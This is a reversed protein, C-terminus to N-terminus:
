EFYGTVDLIVDVPASSDNHVTLRASGDASTGVIASGAKTQGATFNVVSTLPMSTADAPFLRLDGVATGGTVTVNVALATTGAPIGCTGALALTRDSGPDLAPPGSPSTADRTDAVRCPALTFFGGFRSLASATDNTADPDTTTSVVAAAIRIPAAVLDVPVALTTTITRQEGSTLTGLPCPFSTTCDGSNSVLSLGAPVPMDVVVSDASIPGNNTVSLNIALNGGRVAHYPAAMAISIDAALGVLFSSSSAGAGLPTTISIPGTTAGAPVTATIQTPSDVTFATASTGAFAVATAGAFNAGTITVTTGALGSKPSFSAILPLPIPVRLKATPESILTNQNSTHPNTVTDVFLYYPTGPTLGALTAGAASKDATTAALAYPGGFSTSTFVRYGGTDGAYAIPTWSVAITTDSTWSASLSTPATTQSGQWDRQKANLFAVLLPDDTYLANYALGISTLSTLNGIQPPILGPLQNADLLLFKVNTLNGLEPPISGSLQNDSLDILQANALNGLQPPIAGNLRNHRLDISQASTLNGLQPPISGTLQNTDLDLIQLRTLDGLDLPITGGLLNSRLNLTRLNTLNGLQPPIAGSLSNRELNLTQLNVLNGLQPPIPGSLSNYALELSQLSTLNGLQPPISGNLLGNLRLDLTRLNTLSGLDPPISGGLSNAALELTQLGTLSGLESPIPGKLQNGGLSLETVTTGAGDCTVGYWTCETGPAGLWSSGGRRWSPGNTSNYLAILAEREATSIAASANVAALEAMVAVVIASAQFRSHRV